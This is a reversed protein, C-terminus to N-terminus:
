NEGRGAWIIFVVRARRLQCLGSLLLDKQSLEASDYDCFDGPALEKIQSANGLRSWLNVSGVEAQM